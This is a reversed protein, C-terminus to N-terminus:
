NIIECRSRSISMKAGDFQAFVVTSKVDVLKGMVAVDKGFEVIVWKATTNVIAKVPQEKINNIEWININRLSM